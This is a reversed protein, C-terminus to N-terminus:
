PRSEDKRRLFKLTTISDNDLELKRMKVYEITSELSMIIAEDINTYAVKRIEDVGEYKRGPEIKDATFIIKDLLTMNERGTTHYKISNLIEEDHVDFVENAIEAGVKSHTLNDNGKTMKKGCDHLLGAIKAKEIDSGYHHALKEAENMTQICHIYVKPNFYELNKKLKEIYM